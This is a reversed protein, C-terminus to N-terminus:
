NNYPEIKLKFSKIRILKSFELDNKLRSIMTKKIESPEIDANDYAGCLKRMGLRIEPLVLRENFNDGVELHLKRITKSNLSYKFNVKCKIQKGDKTLVVINEEINIDELSYVYLADSIPINHKGSNLVVLEEKSNNYYVGIESPKIFIEKGSILECSFFLITLFISVVSFIRQKNM